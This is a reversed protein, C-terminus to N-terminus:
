PTQERDGLMIKMKLSRNKVESDFLEHIYLTVDRLGLDPNDQAHPIQM